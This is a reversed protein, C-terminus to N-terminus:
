VLNQICRAFVQSVVNTGALSVAWGTVNANDFTVRLENSARFETMFQKLQRNNVSFELGAQGNTFHFGAANANWRPNGDFRMTLQQRARDAITWSSSGMQITFTDDGYFYKVSFFKGGGSTSLGCLQRGNTSSGGFAQWDGVQALTRVDAAAM